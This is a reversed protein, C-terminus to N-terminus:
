SLERKGGWLPTYTGQLHKLSKVKLTNELAQKKRCTKQLLASFLTAQNM